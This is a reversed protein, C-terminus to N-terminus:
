SPHLTMWVKCKRSCLLATNGKMLLVSIRQFLHRIAEEDEQGKARAQARAIRKLEFVTTPHMGGLTEIPLPIFAIGEELCAELTQRCKNTFATELTQGPKSASLPLRPGTLPHVVTVDYATNRGGTWHPIFVDAPKSNRSPILAQEEKRPGLQASQAAMFIANRLHNHRAILEGRRGCVISHDGM